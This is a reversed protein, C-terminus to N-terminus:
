SKFPSDEDSSTGSGHYCYVFVEILYESYRIRSEVDGVACHCVSPHLSTPNVVSNFTIALHLLV